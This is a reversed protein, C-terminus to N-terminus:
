PGSRESDVTRNPRVNISDELTCLRILQRNLHRCLGFEHDVQPRCLGKTQVHWCRQKGAGVLHDFLTTVEALPVERVHRLPREM